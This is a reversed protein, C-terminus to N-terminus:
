LPAVYLPISTMIMWGFSTPIRSPDDVLPARPQLYRGRRCGLRAGRPPCIKRSSSSASLNSAKRAAVLFRPSKWIRAQHTATGPNPFNPLQASDNDQITPKRPGV